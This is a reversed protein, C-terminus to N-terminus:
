PAPALGRCYAEVRPYWDRFPGPADAQGPMGSMSWGHEGSSDSLVIRTTMNGSQEARVGFFERLSRAFVRLSEPDARRSWIDERPGAARQRFASVSDPSLRYGEYLGAFGGGKSLTLLFNGADESDPRAAGTDTRPSRAMPERCAGLAIAALAVAHVLRIM